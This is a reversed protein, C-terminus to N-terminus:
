IRVKGGNELIKRFTNESNSIIVAQSIITELCNEDATKEEKTYYKKCNIIEEYYNSKNAYKWFYEEFSVNEYYWPKHFLNYHILKPNIQTLCENGPQVNWAEDLYLIKGNCMANLYDQDPAITDFNYTTLLKLFGKSFNRKRMEELNMLLVGSNIYEYRNIGIATEIYNVIEPIHQISRETCAGILNDELDINYLESIDGSIITDSDIYIGKDYESFMDSIFLRFFVTLDFYYCKFRKSIYNTISEMQDKMERFEITVNENALSSLKAINEQTLEQHIIFLKYQYEKSSNEIISQISCSAFPAYKNNIAFFIPINKIYTM